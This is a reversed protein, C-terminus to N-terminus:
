VLDGGAPKLGHVGAHLVQGPEQSVEPHPCLEQAVPLEVPGRGCEPQCGQELRSVEEDRDEVDVTQLVIHWEMLQCQLAPSSCFNPNFAEFGFCAVLNTNSSYPVYVYPYDM